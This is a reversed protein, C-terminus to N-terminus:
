GDHQAGSQPTIGGVVLGVKGANRASAILEEYLEIAAYHDTCTLELVVVQGRLEVALTPQSRDGM